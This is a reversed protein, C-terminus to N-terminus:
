GSIKKLGDEFERYWVNFAADGTLEALVSERPEGSAVRAGATERAKAAADEMASELFDRVGASRDYPPSTYLEYSDIEETAARFTKRMADSLDECRAEIAKIDNAEDKVPLYGSATTFVLNRETETFWKLFLAAAYAKKKGEAGESSLLAMGAGQQAVCPKHGSFYPAPLVYCEIPYSYEGNVTVEAPYYAADLTSGVMAVIAGTRADDSRFRSEATYYGKVFPVYFCDWLKRVTERDAKVTVTGDEGAEAFPHGLQKAGAIMYNAVADRGFFAKGDNPIGPTKADTYAYYAEAVKALSEWTMLDGHQYGSASAFERWDTENLMMVETSKATPFIKVADPQGLAGEEIYADVFAMREGTNLYEGMDALKGLKDLRWATGTDTAFLDPPGGANPEGNVAALVSRSLEGASNKSSAEVIVGRENGLTANFEEVMEDFRTRQAGNYSHWVTLTVPKKPNLGGEGACGALLLACLPFIYLLKKM